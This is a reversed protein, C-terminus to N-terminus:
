NFPQAAWARAFKVREAASQPFTRILYGIQWDRFSWLRHRHRPLDIDAHQGSADVVRANWAAPSYAYAGVVQVLVSWGIALVVAARWAPRDLLRDLVPVCLIALLPTSDVIPRYGYTWGGWWDFWAFAPLWLGLVAVSVFRLALWERRKWALLAGAFAAALFPSYVLLGRSPSLLLGAAGLWLPTQWPDPSGTKLEALLKATALQGAHLPSGFYHLNYFAYLLILPAAAIIFPLFSRREALWLHGAAAALALAATPRCAVAASFALGALAGSIWPGRGRIMCLVGLSLFFLAPTQQWLTQSSISWVCTGAAYAVAVLAARASSTLAAAALYVFAASGAVLLAATVKAARWVAEHDRELDVGLSASVLAAPLAALGPGPGFTNAFLPQGRRSRLTPVLYGAAHQTYHLRGSALLEAASPGASGLRDGWSSFRLPKRGSATDIQWRFMFPAELPSFVLDGDRLLSAPTYASAKADNGPLAPGNSLYVFFCVIALTCAVRVPDPTRARLTM